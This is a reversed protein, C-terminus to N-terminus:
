ENVMVYVYRLEFRSPSDKCVLMTELTETLSIKLADKASICEPLSKEPFWPESEYKTKM